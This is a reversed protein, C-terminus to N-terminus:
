RTHRSLSRPIFRDPMGILRQEEERQRSNKMFEMAYRILDVPGMEPPAFPGLTAGARAAPAFLAAAILARRRLDTNV